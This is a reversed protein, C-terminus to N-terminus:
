QIESTNNWSNRLIYLRMNKTMSVTYNYRQQYWWSGTANADVTSTRNVQGIKNSKSLDSPLLQILQKMSIFNEDLSSLEPMTPCQMKALSPTIKTM